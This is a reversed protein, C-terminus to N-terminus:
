VFAYEANAAELGCSIALFKLDGGLYFEINYQKGDILIANCSEAESIIDEL